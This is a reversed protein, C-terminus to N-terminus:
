MLHNLLALDAVKRHEWNSYFKKDPFGDLKSNYEQLLDLHM